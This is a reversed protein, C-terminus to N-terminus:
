LEWTQSPQKLNSNLPLMHPLDTDNDSITEIDFFQAGEIHARAFEQEPNNGSGPLAFTGDLIKLSRRAPSQM